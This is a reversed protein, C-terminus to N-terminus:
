EPQAGELVVLGEDPGLATAGAVREGARDMGTSAAVAGAPLDVVRPAATFNLAVTAAAAGPAARRYCLVGDPADRRAYGGGHLSPEARRLRLLARYLNLASAPDEEEAAVHHTPAQPGLPLWPRGSTFGGGPGGDWPMPTRCGDRGLGPVQLGWPDVELGPPIPVEELGLEDGQYITPTGRLTLLLMAAVRARAPGYRTALRPEDHNGLVWNPWGGPPVAAEIDDVIGGVVDADWPAYLLRFNFPLHLEDLREGYYAAWAEPDDIHIEGISVVPRGAGDLLRRLRRFVAHVDPHGKDYLHEQAAYGKLDKTGAVPGAAPPNSRMQPDKMIFHAVDLRFGDVGRDLWFRVVDFMAAEVEPNRWNLDPQSRLFSHLYYQGTAEDWEWAPGGFVALWNNPPGGGPAPDAWVYWDRRPDDRSSRSALFWPHRDSTHNPVLDVILRVGCGHLAERMRDFDELTGFLPDVGCYDSVDYGFDDMPSPYFPSVWVADVGLTDALYPAREAIGALDGVGDGDADRFSRPYIQYIVGAQWWEM